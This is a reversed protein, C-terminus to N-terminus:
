RLEDLARLFIEASKQWSYKQLIVDNPEKPQAMIDDMRIDTYNLPDIYWVSQGYVEPLASANSVICDAGTSMAEMPPIGFGEYLSPQIFARCSHMLAKVEGDSLYGAFTVNPLTNEKAERDETLISAGSVVFRYQPNQKAAALIWRANKHLFRSGLSFFFTGEELQLKDLIHRDEQIAEFHQWANPLVVIKLDKPQYIRQIDAKATESVTFLLKVQRLIRKNNFIVWQRALKQRRTQSAEPCLEPICDHLCFVDIHRAYYNLLTDVSVIGKDATYRSFTHWRWWIEKLRAAFPLKSKMSPGCEVVKINDFHLTREGEPPVLLEVEGPKVMKDLASLLSLAHRQVGYIERKVLSQGNFVIKKM